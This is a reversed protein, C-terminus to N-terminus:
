RSIEMPVLIHQQPEGGATVMPLHELSPWRYVGIQLTYSGPPTEPPVVLARPDLIIEGARWTSTLRNGNAPPGDGSAIVNGQSDLLNFQISREEGSARLAEWWLMVELPRGARARRSLLEYGLLRTDDGVTADLRNPPRNLTVLQGQVPVAELSSIALDDTIRFSFLEQARALMLTGASPQLRAVYAGPQLGKFQTGLPLVSGDARVGTMSGSALDLSLAVQQTVPDPTVVTGYWGYHHGQDDDWIDIALTVPGSDPMVTEIVVDAHQERVQTNARTVLAARIPEVGSDTAGRELGATQVTLPVAGLNKVVLPRSGDHPYTLHSAGAPIDFVQNGVQVQAEALAFVRLRTFRAPIPADPLRTNASIDWLPQDRFRVELSDGGPLERNIQLFDGLDPSRRYLALNGNRWVLDSYGWPAPDENTYLLGYQGPANPENSSFSTYGTRATGIVTTEDLMYAIAGMPVGQLRVDDSLSVTSGAPIHSRLELLDPLLGAYLGPVGNHADVVKTQSAGMLVLLAIPVALAPLQMRRPLRESLRQMGFAAIGLFVFGTYSSGKMFAYPYSQGFRLWLLYALAALGVAAWRARLATNEGAAQGEFQSISQREPLLAGLGLLVLLALGLWAITPPPTDDRLAFPSLGLIDTPPIFRFLGLTTMQFSYRYSFGGFYDGITPAALGVALLATALAGGALSLAGPKAARWRVAEGVRVLGLALVLPLWFTLAPYYCIPLAAIVLAALVAQPLRRWGTAAAEVGALGIALAGGLLAWASLQMGFNFYSVWLLLSGASVWAAGILAPWQRLGLTSRLLLYVGLVGLTRLWALLPAFSVIAESRTLVDVSGQWVSFGLTLGIRPPSANIDRLPNPLATAIGSVPGRELYRATPLYNETDWGGGIIGVHGYSLLPVIGVLLTAALLVALPWHERVAAVIRPKGTRQWALGNVAASLILVVLLSQALSFMTHVAWYGCVVVLAYGVIPMALSRFPQLRDPLVLRCLGWGCWLALLSAGAFIALLQLLLLPM